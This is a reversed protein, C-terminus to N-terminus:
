CHWNLGSGEIDSVGAFRILGELNKISVRESGRV